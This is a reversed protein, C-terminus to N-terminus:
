KKALEQDIATKFVEFPQAGNIVRGNVFFHPTGQVGFSQGLSLDAQVKAVMRDSSLCQKFKSENLNLEKAIRYFDADELQASAFAKERYQWYKDKSQERACLVAESAPLARQHFSLPFEKALLKVDNPYAALVKKLTDQSRKCYPCQIDTFEVITVRANAPGLLVDDPGIPIQVNPQVPAALQITIPYKQRLAAMVQNERQMRKQNTVIDTAQKRFEKQRAPDSVLEGRQAAQQSINQVMSEIEAATPTALTKDIERKKWEEVSVKAEKAAQAYMLEQARKEVWARKKEYVQNLAQYEALKLSVDKDMDADTITASGVQAVTGAYLSSAILGTFLVSLFLRSFRM